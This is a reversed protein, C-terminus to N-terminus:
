GVIDKLKVAVLKINSKHSEIEEATFEHVIYDYIKESSKDDISHVLSEMRDLAWFLNVATPRTKRLVHITEELKQILKKREENKHQYAILAVGMAGAIGIAPAGRIRLNRIAEALDQIQDIDIYVLQGPLKTQDIIRIKGDIWEITKVSM